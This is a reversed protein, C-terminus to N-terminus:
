QMLESERVVNVKRRPHTKQFKWLEYHAATMSTQAQVENIQAGTVADTLIFHDAKMHPSRSVMEQVAKARRGAVSRAVSNNRVWVHFHEDSVPPRDVPAAVAPPPSLPDRFKDDYGFPVVRSPGCSVTEADSYFQGTQMREFSKRRLKEADEMNIFMAPAFFDELQSGASATGGEAQISLDFKRAGSVKQFGLKDIRVGLPTVRQVVELRSLPDAVIQASDVGEAPQQADQETNRLIVHAAMGNPLVATWNSKDAIAKEILPLVDVEQSIESLEEGTSKDFDVDYDWIWIEFTATGRIRWPNTGSFKGKVTVGALRNDGWFIRLKGEFDVIFYFPDFHFLADISLNSELKFKSWKLKLDIKFGAQFTNSTVALYCSLTLTTHDGSMLPISIRQPKAPLNLGAPVEFDPHWGGVSILFVPDDGWRYRVYLEGRIDFVLFRSAYIAADISFIKKGLDLGVLFNVQLRVIQKDGKKVQVKLVGAIAIKVPSPVEILLGLKLDVLDSSGWVIRAMFAFVYRGEAAPFLSNLAKVITPANGVPNDPFLILDIRDDRIAAQFAELNMTRHIAVMVGLGKLKFGFATDISPTFEISAMILFSFGKKGDPLQTLIIAVVKLTLEYKELKIKLEGAGYYQHNEPDISLIGGGTVVSANVLFGVATPPKLDIAGDAIGLNVKEKKTFDLSLLLGLRDVTMQFPGLKSKILASAELAVGALSKKEDMLPKIGAYLTPVQLAKFNKSAISFNFLFGDGTDLGEMTWQNLLPSYVISFSVKMKLGGSDPLLKQVFGDRGEGSFALSFDKFHLSIEADSEDKGNVKKIKPHIRFFVDGARGDETGETDDKKGLWQIEVLPDTSFINPGFAHFPTNHGWIFSQSFDAPFRIGFDGADSGFEGANLNMNLVYQYGEPEAGNEAGSPLVPITMFSFVADTSNPKKFEGTELDEGDGSFLEGPIFQMQFVRSAFKAANPFVDKEPPLEYGMNFLFSGMKKIRDEVLLFWIISTILFAGKTIRLHDDLRQDGLPRFYDANLEKDLKKSKELAKVVPFLLLDLARNLENSEDSFIGIADFMIAVPPAKKFFFTHTLFRALARIANLKATKEEDGVLLEGNPGPYESEDMLEAVAEWVKYLEALLMGLAVINGVNPIDSKDLGLKNRLKNLTGLIFGLKEEAKKKSTPDAKPKAGLEKLLEGKFEEDKVLESLPSLWEDAANIWKTVRNM